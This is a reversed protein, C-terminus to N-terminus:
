MNRNGPSLNSSYRRENEGEKQMIALWATRRDRKPSEKTKMICTSDLIIASQRPIGRLRVLIACLRFFPLDKNGFTGISEQECHGSLLIGRYFKNDTISNSLIKYNSIKEKEQVIKITEYQLIPQSFGGGGATFSYFKKM